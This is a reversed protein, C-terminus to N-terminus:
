LEQHSSNGNANATQDNTCAEPTCAVTAPTSSPKATGTLARFTLPFSSLRGPIASCKSCRQRGMEAPTATGTKANNEAPTAMPPQDPRCDASVSGIATPMM